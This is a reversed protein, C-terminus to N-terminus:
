RVLVIKSARDGLPGSLRVFYVGAAARTGSQSTGDWEARYNGGTLRAGAILSRVLRGSVDYVALDVPGAAGTAFCIEATTMFPNPGTRLSMAGAGPDPFDDDASSPAPSTWLLVSTDYNYVL